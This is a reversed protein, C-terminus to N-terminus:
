LERGVSSIMEERGVLPSIEVLGLKDRLYAFKIKSLPKTLIYATQEDTSIYQLVFEGRQVKDHLFYYKTEIHKSRDHFVQNESLKVYSQNDCYIITSVLKRLLVAETCADCAAIYEAETTNLAVSKQKISAWSIMSSGLSFCMGYTSKIDDVSRAWYSDTFGHLQVDNNSAYRLGYTIMGRRYRLVHNAAISHEQRPEV